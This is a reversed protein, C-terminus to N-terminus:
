SGVARPGVVFRYTTDVVEGTSDVPALAGPAGLPNCYRPPIELLRASRPVAREPCRPSAGNFFVATQPGPNERHSKTPNFTPIPNYSWSIVPSFFVHQGM